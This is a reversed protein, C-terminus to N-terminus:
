EITSDELMIAVFFLVIFCLLHLILGVIQNWFLSGNKAWIAFDFRIIAASYYNQNVRHLRSGLSYWDALYPAECPAREAKTSATKGPLAAVCNKYRKIEFQEWSEYAKPLSFSEIGSCVICAAASNENGLWWARPIIKIGSIIELTAALGAATLVLLIFLRWNYLAYAAGRGTAARINV